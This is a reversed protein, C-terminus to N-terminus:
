ILSNDESVIERVRVTNCYFCIGDDLRNVTGCNSCIWGTTGSKYKIKNLIPHYVRMYGLINDRQEKLYWIRELDPKDKILRDIFNTIYERDRQTIEIFHEIAKEKAETIIAETKKIMNKELKKDSYKMFACVIGIILIIALIIPLITGM